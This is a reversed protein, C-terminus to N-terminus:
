RRSELRRRLLAHAAALATLALLGVAGLVATRRALFGPALLVAGIAFPLEALALQEIWRVLRLAPAHLVDSSAVVVLVALAAIVTLLRRRLLPTAAPENM